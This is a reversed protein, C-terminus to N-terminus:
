GGEGKVDVGEQSESRGGEEGMGVVSEESREGRWLGRREGVV